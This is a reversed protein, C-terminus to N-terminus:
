TQLKIKLANKAVRNKGSLNLLTIQSSVYEWEIKFKVVLIKLAHKSPLRAQKLKLTLFFVHRILTDSNIFM